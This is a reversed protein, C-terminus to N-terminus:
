GAFLTNSLNYGTYLPTSARVESPIKTQDIQIKNFSTRHTCHFTEENCKHPDNEAGDDEYEVDDENGHITILRTSHDLGSRSPPVWEENAVTRDKFSNWYGNTTNDYVFDNRNNDNSTKQRNHLRYDEAEEDIMGELDDTTLANTQNQLEELANREEILKLYQKHVQVKLRNEEATIINDLIYRRREHKKSLVDLEIKHTEKMIKIDHKHKDIMKDSVADNHGWPSVSLSKSINTRWIEQQKEDLELAKDEWLMAEDLQGKKKLRSSNRKYNVVDPTPRRTNYSATKNHRCTYWNQCNCMKLKGIARRQTNEVQKMFEQKQQDLLRERQLTQKNLLSNNEKILEDNLRGRRRESKKNLVTIQEQLLEGEEKKREEDAIKILGQIEVEIQEAKEIFGLKAMTNREKQLQRLLTDANQGSRISNGSTTSMVSFSKRKKLESTNYILNECLKHLQKRQPGKAGLDYAGHNDVEYTYYQYARELDKDDLEGQNNETTKFAIKRPSKRNTRYPCSPAQINNKWGDRLNLKVSYIMNNKVYEM